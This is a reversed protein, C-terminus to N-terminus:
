SLHSWLPSEFRFGFFKVHNELNDLWIVSRINQRYRQAPGNAEDTEVAILAVVAIEPEHM